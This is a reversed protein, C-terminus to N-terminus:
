YKILPKNLIIKAISKLKHDHVFSKLNELVIKERFLERYYKAYQAAYKEAIYENIKEQNPTSERRSLSHDVVRYEFGIEELYKLKKGTFFMNLWLEWDENGHFPIKDDYCGVEVLSHKRILSCTDIYNSNMLKVIDVNGPKWHFNSSGFSWAEPYVVDLSDDEEMLDFAKEFVKPRLKNDADLPLIYKGKAATIATNRANAPGANPQDIVTIGRAKLEDLKNKTFADSSGDNVIIYEIPMKWKYYLVSDVAEEVLHGHNYCPTIISIEPEGINM